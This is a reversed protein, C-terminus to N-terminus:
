SMFTRKRLIARSKIKFFFSEPIKLQTFGGLFQLDYYWIWKRVSLFRFFSYVFEYELITKWSFHLIAFITMETFTTRWIIPDHRELFIGWWILINSMQLIKAIVNYSQFYNISQYYLYLELKSIVVYFMKTWLSKIAYWVRLSM